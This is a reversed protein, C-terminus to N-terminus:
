GVCSDRDQDHPMKRLAFSQQWLIFKHTRKAKGPPFVLGELVGGVLPTASCQAEERRDCLCPTEFLRQCCLLCDQASDSLELCYKMNRQLFYKKSLMQPMAGCCTMTIGFYPKDTACHSLFWVTQKM